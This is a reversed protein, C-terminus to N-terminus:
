MKMESSLHHQEVETRGLNMSDEWSTSAQPARTRMSPSTQRHPHTLLAGAGSFVLPTLRYCYIETLLMCQRYMMIMVADEDDDVVVCCCFCCSVAPSMNIAIVFLM